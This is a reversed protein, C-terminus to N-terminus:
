WRRKLNSLLLAAILGVMLGALVGVLVFTSRSPSTPENPVYVEGLMRTPYSRVSSMSDELQGKEKRLDSLERGAVAIMNYALVDRIAPERQGMSTSTRAADVVAENESVQKNVEGLASAWKSYASKYAASDRAAVADFTERLAKSALDKSHASVQVYLTGPAKSPSARLSNFVLRAEMRGSPEDEGNAMQAVKLRFSPENVVDIINTPVDFPRAMGETWLQGVQVTMNGTWIPRHVYWAIGGLIAGIICSSILVKFYRGFFQPISLELSVAEPTPSM